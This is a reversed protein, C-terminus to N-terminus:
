PPVIRGAEIEAAQREVEGSLEEVFMVWAAESEAYDQDAERARKKHQVFMGGIADGFFAGIVGAVAYSGITFGAFVPVSFFGTSLAFLGNSVVALATGLVIMSLAKGYYEAAESFRHAEEVQTNEYAVAVRLMLRRVTQGNEYLMDNGGTSSITGRLAGRTVTVALDGNPQGDIRPQYGSGRPFHQNVLPIVARCLQHGAEHAAALDVGPVKIIRDYHGPM